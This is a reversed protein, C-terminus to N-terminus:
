VENLKWCQTCTGNLWHPFECKNTITYNTKNIIYKRCKTTPCDEYGCIHMLKDEMKMDEDKSEIQSNSICVHDLTGFKLHLDDWKTILQRFTCFECFKNRLDGRWSLHLCRTTDPNINVPGGNDQYPPCFCTDCSILGTDTAIIGSACNTNSHSCNCVIVEIGPITIEEFNQVIQLELFETDDLQLTSLDDSNKLVDKNFIFKINYLPSIELENVYFARLASLPIKQDKMSQMSVRIIETGSFSRLIVKIKKVTNPHNVFHEQNRLSNDPSILCVHIDRINNNNNNNQKTNENYEGFLNYSICDSNLLNFVQSSNLEFDTRLEDRNIFDDLDISQSTHINRSDYTSYAQDMLQGFRDSDSGLIMYQDVEYTTNKNLKYFDQVVTVRIAVAIEKISLFKKYNLYKQKYDLYKQKYNLNEKVSNDM